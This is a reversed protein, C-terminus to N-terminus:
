VGGETLHLLSSLGLGPYFCLELDLPGYGRVRGVMCTLVVRFIIVLCRDTCFLLCILEVDM